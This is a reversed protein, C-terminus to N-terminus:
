DTCTSQIKVSGLPRGTSPVLHLIDFDFEKRDIFFPLVGSAMTAFARIGGSGDMISSRGGRVKRRDRREDIAM